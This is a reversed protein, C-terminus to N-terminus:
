ATAPERIKALLSSLQRRRAEVCWDRLLRAHLRALGTLQIGAGAVLEGARDRRVEGRAWITETVGPLELELGFVPARAARNNVRNLFLGSECLNAALVRFRRDGVYQNLFLPFDIRPGIRRDRRSLM